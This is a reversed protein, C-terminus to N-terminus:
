GISQMKQDNAQQESLPLETIMVETTLVTSGVSVANEIASRVVKTPDLIGSKVILELKGTLANFGFGQEKSKLIENLIYGDDVGANKALMRLPQELAKTLLNIGMQEESNDSTIEKLLQSIKILTVGGGTIIGEDIAARTAGLADIVREKKEKLEVDTTAGVKIVAIGSTLKALREELMEKEYESKTKTIKKEILEIRTSLDKKKHKGGVIQCEDSTVKVKDAKGLESLEISSLKRGTEQSIFVGGTLCAIDELIARRSEGFSPAKVVVCNFVGRVRNRILTALSSGDIDSAIILFNKGKVKEVFPLIENVHNIKKDTILIYVDDELIASGTLPENVFHPAVWGESFGMGERIVIETEMGQGEEVTVVGKKGVRKLSDAIIKGIGEDGSSNIAVDVIEQDTKVPKSIEKLEKLAVDKAYLLGKRVIMPNAGATVYKLGENIIYQALLTATTTGDGAVDNTKSAAQKILQAGMNEFKNPLNIERAVSVGDHVISPVGWPRDLAVNRGKPGLTTVVAQALINVGRLIAQRAKEGTLIQKNM